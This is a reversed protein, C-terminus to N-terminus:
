SSLGFLTYPANLLYLEECLDLWSVSRRGFLQLEYELLDFMFQENPQVIYRIRTSRVHSFARRVCMRKKYMLYAMILTASRSVGAQCHVLVNKGARLAEDIFKV